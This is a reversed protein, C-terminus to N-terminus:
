TTGETGPSVRSKLVAIVSLQAMKWDGAGSEGLKLISDLMGDAVFDSWVSLVADLVEETTNWLAGALQNNSTNSCLYQLTDRNAGALWRHLLDQAPERGPLALVLRKKSAVVPGLDEPPLSDQYPAWLDADSGLYPLLLGELDRDGKYIGLAGRIIILGELLDCGQLHSAVLSTVLREASDEPDVGQSIHDLGQRLLDNEVGPIEDELAWLGELQGKRGLKVLTDILPLLSTKEVRSCKARDFLQVSQPLFFQSYTDKM